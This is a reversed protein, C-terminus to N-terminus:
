IIMWFLFVKRCTRPQRPIIDCWSDVLRVLSTIHYSANTWNRHSNNRFWTYYINLRQDRLVRHTEEIAQDDDKGAEQCGSIDSCCWTGVARIDDGATSRSLWCVLISPHLLPFAVATIISELEGAVLLLTNLFGTILTSSSLSTIVIAVTCPTCVFVTVSARVEPGKAVSALVIVDSIWITLTNRKQPTSQGQVDTIIWIMRHNTQHLMM